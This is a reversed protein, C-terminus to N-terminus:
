RARRGARGARGARAARGSSILRAQAGGVADATLLLAGAMVAVAPWRGSERLNTGLVGFVSSGLYYALLYFASAQSAARRGQGASAAWGSAVGHVAFFGATIMAIGLVVVPLPSALSLAVGATAFLGGTLVVVLRGLREALRGAVAAGASGLPYVCFVLSAGFVTLHYPATTLRLGLV